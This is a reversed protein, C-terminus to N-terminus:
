SHEDGALPQQLQKRCLGAHERLLTPLDGRDLDARSRFLLKLIDVDPRSADLDRDCGLEALRGFAIGNKPVHLALVLAEPRKTLLSVWPDRQGPLYARVLVQNNWLFQVQPAAERLMECLLELVEVDWEIRKGPAFGKRLFHWKEGLKKWPTHEELESSPQASFRFFGRVAQELFRWFDPTNIEEYTHARIEVEQWPGRASRCKLRPENGYIPLGEMQNLTQLQIRDLLEQRQFTGRYARFKMILLWTEATIAHFFWGTSKKKARIEVVSRSNWDTESFDGLEHIRDVV